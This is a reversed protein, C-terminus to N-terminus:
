LNNLTQEWAEIDKEYKPQKWKGINRPNTLYNGPLEDIEKRSPAKGVVMKAKGARIIHYLERILSKMMDSSLTGEAPKLGKMKSSDSYGSQRVMCKKIKDMVEPEDRLPDTVEFTRAGPDVKLRMGSLNRPLGVIMGAPAESLVREGDVRDIVEKTAKISSRLRVGITKIMLDSNRPHDAEIEFPLVSAPMRKKEVVSSM